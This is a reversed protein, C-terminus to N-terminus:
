RNPGPTSPAVLQRLAETPPPTDDLLATVRAYGEADLLIRDRARARELTPMSFERVVGTPSVSAIQRGERVQSVSWDLLALADRLLDANGAGLIARLREVQQVGLPDAIQAELRLPITAM